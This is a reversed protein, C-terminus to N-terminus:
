DPADVYIGTLYGKLDLPMRMNGRKWIFPPSGDMPTCALYIQGGYQMACRVGEFRVNDIREELEDRFGSVALQEMNRTFTLHVDPESDYYHYSGSGAGKLWAENKWCVLEAPMGIASAVLNIVASCGGAKGFIEASRFGFGPRDDYSWKREGCSLLWGGPCDELFWMEGEVVRVARLEGGYPSSLAFDDGDKVLYSLKKGGITLAYDFYLLRDDEYLPGPTGGTKAFVPAGDCRLAFGEGGRDIGLTWVGDERRILSSIYERAPISFEAVGNKYVVTSPGEPSIVYMDGGILFHSDADVASTNMSYEYIRVGDEFIVFSPTGSGANEVGCAYIRPSTKPEEFYPSVTSSDPVFGGTQNVVERHIDRHLTDGRRLSIVGPMDSCSSILILAFLIYSLRKM